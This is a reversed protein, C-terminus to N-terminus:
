RVRQAARAMALLPAPGALGRSANLMSTGWFMGCRLEGVHLFARWTWPIHKQSDSEYELSDIGASSLIRQWGARSQFCVGVRATNAGLRHILPAIAKASTLGFIIRSPANGVILGDYINEFVSIRGRSTLLGTAARLAHDIHALSQRYDDGVLHHLVWNFFVLDYRRDIRILHEASDEILRKRAHPTNKGLLLPSNDLITGHAQPYAALLRDTFRGSGGGVDLFRIDGHPFAADIRRTLGRWLLPTVYETDFHALQADSLRKIPM